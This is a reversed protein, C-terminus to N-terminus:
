HVFYKDVRLMKNIAKRLEKLAAYCLIPNIWSNAYVAFFQVALFTQNWYGVADVLLWYVHNPTWCFIIAVVLYALVRNHSTSSGHKARGKKQSTTAQSHSVPGATVNTEVSGANAAVSQEHKSTYGPMAGATSVAKKEAKIQNQKHIKFSVFGSLAIVIFETVTFGLIEVMLATKRQFEVNVVCQTDNPKKWIRGPVILSLHLINVCLWVVAITMYTVRVNHHKRYHIPYTVAWLRNCAILVHGYRVGSGFINNGYLFFTCAANSFPFYGYLGRFFNGPMGMTALLVEAICLNVILSNFSNRLNQEKIYVLVIIGNFLISAVISFGLFGTLVSVASTPTSHGHTHNTANTVMLTTQNDAM